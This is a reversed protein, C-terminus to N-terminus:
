STSEQETQLDGAGEDLLPDAGLESEPTVASPDLQEVAVRKSKGQYM